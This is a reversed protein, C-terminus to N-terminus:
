LLGIWGEFDFLLAIVCFSVSLIMSSPMSLPRGIALIFFRVVVRSVIPQLVYFLTAPITVGRPLKM